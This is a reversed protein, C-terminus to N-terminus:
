EIPRGDTVASACNNEGSVRQFCEGAGNGAGFVWRVRTCLTALHFWLGYDGGTGSGLAAGGGRAGVAGFGASRDGGETLGVGGAVAMTVAEAGPGKEGVRFGGGLEGGEEGEELALELRVGFDLVHQDSGHGQGAPTLSAQRFQFCRYEVAFDAAQFGERRVLAREGQGRAGKSRQGIVAAREFDDVAQLEAAFSVVIAGDVAQGSKAGVSNEFFNINVFSGLLDNFVCCRM